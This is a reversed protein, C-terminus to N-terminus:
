EQRKEKRRWVAALFLASCFLAASAAAYILVHDEVGTQIITGKKEEKLAIHKPSAEVTYCMAHCIPDYSPIAILVPDMEEYETSKWVRVLYVGAPLDSVSACGYADTKKMIANEYGAARSLQEAALEWQSATTLSNLDVETWELEEYLVFMGDEMNAVPVIAFEVWNKAFDQGIDELQIRINGTEQAMVTTSCLLFVLIVCLFRRFEKRRM